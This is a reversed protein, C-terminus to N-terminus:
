EDRSLICRQIKKAEDTTVVMTTVSCDGNVREIQLLNNKEFGEPYSIWKCYVGEPRDFDKEASATQNNM